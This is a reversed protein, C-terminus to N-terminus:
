QDGGTDAAEISAQIVFRDNSTRPNKTVPSSFSVDRLLDSNEMLGILSSAGESEGQIRVTGGNIQVRTLWTDDPMVRTIEDLLRIKTPMSEWKEAFFGGQRAAAAIEDQTEKAALAAPSLRSIEADLEQLRLWKHGIPYALAILALAVATITLATPVIERKTMSRSQKADPLLNVAAQKGPSLDGRLTVSSPVIDLEKLRLLISDVTQRLAVVLDINVVKRATDRSDIQFDFYVDDRAYPTLRDMEYGLVDALRDETGFPLSVRRRFAQLPSLEVIAIDAEPWLAEPNTVQPGRSEPAPLLRAVLENENASVVLVREKRDFVERLKPPIVELIESRWWKWFRQLSRKPDGRQALMTPRLVHLNM